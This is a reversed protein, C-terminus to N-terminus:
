RRPSLTEALLTLGPNFRESPMLRFPPKRLTIKPMCAPYLLQKQSFSHTMLGFPVCFGAIKLSVNLARYAFVNENRKRERLTASAKFVCLNLSDFFEWDPSILHVGQM